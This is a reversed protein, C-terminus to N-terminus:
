HLLFLVVDNIRRVFFLMFAFHDAHRIKWAGTEVKNM